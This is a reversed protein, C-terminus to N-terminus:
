GAPRCAARGRRVPTALERLRPPMQSVAFTKGLPWRRAGASWCCPWRRPTSAACRRPMPWAQPGARSARRRWCAAAPLRRRTRSNPRPCCWCRAGDAEEQRRQEQQARGALRDPRRRGQRQDGARVPQPLNGGAVRGAREPQLDELRRGERADKGDPLGAPDPRRPRPNRHAGGSRHRHARACRSSTVSQDSVQSLAGSYTRVLLTKFEDQLRKQQEPTAQRWAPGVASATMRQFNVNPM